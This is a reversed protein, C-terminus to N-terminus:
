KAVNMDNRSDPRFSIPGGVPQSVQQEPSRIQGTRITGLLDMWFASDAEGDWIVRM